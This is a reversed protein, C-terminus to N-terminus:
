PREVGLTPSSSVVNLELTVHEVSHALWTGWRNSPKSCIGVRNGLRGMPKIYEPHSERFYRWKQKYVSCKQKSQLLNILQELVPSMGRTKRVIAWLACHLLSVVPLGQLGWGATVDGKRGWGFVPTPTLSDHNKDREIGRFRWRTLMTVCESTHRNNEKCISIDLM